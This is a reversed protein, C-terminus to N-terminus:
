VREAAIALGQRRAQGTGHLHQIWEVDYPQSQGSDVVHAAADLLLGVSVASAGIVREIPYPPHQTTTSLM